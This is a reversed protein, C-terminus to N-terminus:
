PAPTAKDDIKLIKEVDATIDVGGYGVYERTFVYKLGRDAAAQKAANRVDDTLETQAKVYRRQFDAAQSQKQALPARSNRIAAGDANLQNEYNMFKPWNAQIRSTDVLGIDSKPQNSCAPLIALLATAAFLLKKV